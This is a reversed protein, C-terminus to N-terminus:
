EELPEFEVLLQETQVNDGIKVNISKVKLEAEAVLANEM